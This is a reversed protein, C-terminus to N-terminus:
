GLASVRQPSVGILRAIDRVTYGDKRLSGVTTRLSASARAQAEAADSRDAELHELMAVDSASLRPEVTVAIDDHGLMRAADRVMDEVQDLRRTQTFLGPIEPCEIAWWGGSRTCQATIRETM